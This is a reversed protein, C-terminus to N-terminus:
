RRSFDEPSNFPLTGMSGLWSQAAEAAQRESRSGEDLAEMRWGRERLRVLGYVTLRHSIQLPQTHHQLQLLRATLHEQLEPQSDLYPGARTLFHILLDFNNSATLSDSATMSDLIQLVIGPTTSTINGITCGQSLFTVFGRSWHMETMMRQFQTQCSKMLENRMLYPGRMPLEPVSLNPDINRALLEYVDLAAGAAWAEDQWIRAQVVENVYILRNYDGNLQQAITQIAQTAERKTIDCSLNRIISNVCDKFARFFIENAKDKDFAPAM